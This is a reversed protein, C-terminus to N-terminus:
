ELVPEDAILEVSHRAHGFHGTDSPHHPLILDIDGGALQAGEVDGQRCHHIRHHPAVAVNAAIHHLRAAGPGHHTAQAENLADAVDLLDNHAGLIAHRDEDALDGLHLNP